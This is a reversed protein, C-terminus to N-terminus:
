LSLIQQLLLPIGSDHLGSLLNSLQTLRTNVQETARQRLIYSEDLGRIQLVQHIRANKLLEVAPLIGSERYLILLPITKYVPLISRLGSMVARKIRSVQKGNRNSKLFRKGNRWTSEM